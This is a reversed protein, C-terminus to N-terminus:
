KELIVEENHDKWMIIKKGFPFNQGRNDKQLVWFTQWRGIGVKKEIYNQDGYGDTFYFLCKIDKDKGELLDEFVPIYSTGGGGTLVKNYSNRFNRIGKIRAKGHIEADCGYLVIELQPMVRLMSRIEGIFEIIDEKTISGSTDLALAVKAKSGTQGPLYLNYPLYARNVKSTTYQGRGIEQMKKKIYRKWDVHGELEELYEDIMRNFEDPVQGREKPTLSSAHKYIKKDVDNMQDQLNKGTKKKTNAMQNGTEQSSTKHDDFQGLDGEGGGKMRQDHSRPKEKKEQRLLDLIKEANMGKFQEDYLIGKPFELLNDFKALENIIVSNIAYDLAYNTTKVDDENKMASLKFRMFHKFLIHLLEHLLLTMTQNKNIKEVFAPNYYIKTGDTAMTPPDLDLKEEVPFELLLAGFLRNRILLRCKAYKIKDFVSMQM